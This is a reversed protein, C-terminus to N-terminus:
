RLRMRVWVPRHDSISRDDVIGSDIYELGKAFVHDLTSKRNLLYWQKYTWSGSETMWQFGYDKLTDVVIDVHGDNFTNFDGAIIYYGADESITDIIAEVQEKRQKLKILAGLHVSFVTIRKGNKVITAMAANRQLRILKDDSCHPFYISKIEKIPWRSLLAVGFEKETVPHIASPYFVYNYELERATVIVSEPCMEQLCIVDADSFEENKAFYDSIRKNLRCLRINFSLIKIEESGDSAPSHVDLLAYKRAESASINQIEKLYACSSLYVSVVIIFIVSFFNKMSVKTAM